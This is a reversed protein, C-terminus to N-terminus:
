LIMMNWKIEKEKYIWHNDNRRVDRFDGSWSNKSLLDIKWEMIEMDIKHACDKCFDVGFLSLNNGLAHIANLKGSQLYEREIGFIDKKKIVPIEKGCCDCVYIEKRSM